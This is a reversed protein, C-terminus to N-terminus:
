PNLWDIIRVVKQMWRRDNLHPFPKDPVLVELFDCLPEWGEKVNFVLLKEPPVSAKVRDIHEEFKTIAFERNDFQGQFIGEWAVANIMEVHWRVPPAVKTLWHPIRTGAYITEHVSEYWTEPDRISLLVKASPFTSYLKEYFCCAPFDLTSEYGKLFRKWDVQGKRSAALWVRAHHPHSFVSSMHYCAGFGLYELAAKLSTTGTRGFGAGIVKM